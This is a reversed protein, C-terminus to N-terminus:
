KIAHPLIFAYHLIKFNTNKFHWMKTRSSPKSKWFRVHWAIRQSVRNMKLCFVRESGSECPFFIKNGQTCLSWVSADVVLIWLMSLAKRNLAKTFVWSELGNVTVSIWWEFFCMCFVNEQPKYRASWGPVIILVHSCAWMCLWFHTVKGVTVLWREDGPGANLTDGTIHLNQTLWLQWLIVSEYFLKPKFPDKFTM